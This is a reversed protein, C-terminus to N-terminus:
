EHGHPSSLWFTFNNDVGILSALVCTDIPLLKQFRVVQDAGHTPPTITLIVCHRFAEELEELAFPDFSLGVFGPFHRPSIDEIVDFHEVIRDAAM